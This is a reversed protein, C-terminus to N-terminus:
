SAALFQLVEWCQQAIEFFLEPGGTPFLRPNVKPVSLTKLPTGKQVVERWSEGRHSHLLFLSVWSLDLDCKSLVLLISHTM